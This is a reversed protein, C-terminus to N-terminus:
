CCFPSCCCLPYCCNVPDNCATNKRPDYGEAYIGNNQPGMNNEVRVNGLFLELKEAAARYKPNMPEIALALKLQKRCEGYWGRKYFIISQLYHWEARRQSMADLADQAEQLKGEKILSDILAYEGGEIFQTEKKELEATLLTYAEEVEMLSRSAANGEEGEKFRDESYKSKLRKYAEEIEERSADPEIGLAKYYKELAFFQM